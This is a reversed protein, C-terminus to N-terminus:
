FIKIRHLAPSTILMSRLQTWVLILTYSPSLSWNIPLLSTFGQVVRYEVYCARVLVLLRSISVGAGSRVWRELVVVRSVSVLGCGAEQKGKLVSTHSGM